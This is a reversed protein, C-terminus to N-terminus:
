LSSCSRRLIHRGHYSHGHLDHQEALPATPTLTAVNAAYSVTAAIASGSQPTLTFTSGTITSANMAENFTATVTSTIAIGTAGIAPTVATVAPAPLPATTFSWTYNSTLATGAISQVGTTLTATYTTSYALPLM